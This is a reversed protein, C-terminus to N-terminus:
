GLADRVPKFSRRHLRCPGQVVLAAKHHVTPYGKHQALGYGPHLLDAREMMRDRMVKAVISAAAISLSRSDGKVLCTAPCPLTDPIANGDILAHDPSVELSAVCHAMASLSATRINLRDITTASLSTVAVLATAMIADFAQERQRLSLKKSDNLGAPINLPDLIVAAATVPGAMPGRGVEDVGCVKAFGRDMLKKELVFDPANAM